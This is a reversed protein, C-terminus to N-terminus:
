YTRGADGENLGWGACERESRLTPSAAANELAVRLLNERLGVGGGRTSHGVVGDRAGAKDPGDLEGLENPGERVCVVVKSISAHMDHVHWPVKRPVNIIRRRPCIRGLRAYVERAVGRVVHPEEARALTRKRSVPCRTNACVSLPLTM